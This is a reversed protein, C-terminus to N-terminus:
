QIGGVVSFMPLLISVIIFGVMGGMGVILIPEIMSSLRSVTQDVEQDYFVSLKELLNDLAGTEEGIAIMQTVMTPFVGSEELPGAMGQGDRISTQAKEVGEMVIVNGATRKVVELAQLIPVGGKLLTGLTRAFRSVIMKRLVVGVVPLKLLMKDRWRRGEPKAFFWNATVITGMALVPLMFWFKRLLNSIGMVFRTSTPLPVNMNVLMNTFTPLVSVMLFLVAFIAVAFIVAPYTLASKVKETIEHEKEFHVALRALVEDLVGGVEGAEVMNIMIQPFVKPFSRLADALTDGGELKARVGGIIGKLRPSESQSELIMMSPMIPLGADMMTSFQRCFVALDKSSVGKQPLSIKLGQANFRGIQPKVDTIFYGRSRLSDVAAQMSDAELRGSVLKGNGDRGRYSFTTM